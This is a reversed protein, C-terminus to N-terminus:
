FSSSVVDVKNDEVVATYGDIVADNSLEPIDYLIEKAGPATGLSMQTDLSAEFADDTNPNFAGSGGDVARVTVTPVPLNSNASYAQILHVGGGLNLNSNFTM